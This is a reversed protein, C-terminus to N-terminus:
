QRSQQQLMVKATKTTTPPISYESGKPMMSSKRRSLPPLPKRVPKKVPRTRRTYTREGAIVPAFVTQQTIFSSTAFPGKVRPRVVQPTLVKIKENCMYKLFPFYSLMRKGVAPPSVNFYQVTQVAPLVVVIKCKVRVPAIDQRYTVCFMLWTLWAQTMYKQLTRQDVKIGKFTKLEILVFAATDNEIGILDVATVHRLAPAKSNCKNCIHPSKSSIFVGAHSAVKLDSCLPVLNLVKCIDKALYVIGRPVVNISGNFVDRMYGDVCRGLKLHIGEDAWVKRIDNTNLHMHAYLTKAIPMGTAEDMFRFMGINDALAIYNIAGDANIIADSCAAMGQLSFDRLHNKTVFKRIIHGHRDVPSFMSEINETIGASPSNDMLSWTKPIFPTFSQIIRRAAEHATETSCM